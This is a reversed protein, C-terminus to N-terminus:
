VIWGGFKKVPFPSPTAVIKFELENELEMIFVITKLSYIRKEKEEVRLVKLQVLAVLCLKNRGLDRPAM